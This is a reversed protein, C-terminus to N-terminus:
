AAPAPPGEGFGLAFAIAELAPAQEAEAVGITLRGEGPDLEIEFFPCCGREIRVAEEVLARDVAPGLTVTLSGASREFGLASRGIEAYRERQSLLESGDLSCSPIDLDGAM